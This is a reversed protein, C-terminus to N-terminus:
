DTEESTLESGLKVYLMFRTVTDDDVVDLKEALLLTKAEELKGTLSPDRNTNSYRDIEALLDQKIEALKKKVTESDNNASAFAYAKMLARQTETLVGSYKENLKKTMVKM